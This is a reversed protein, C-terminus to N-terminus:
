KRGDHDAPLLNSKSPTLPVLKTPSKNQTSMLRAPEFPSRNHLSNARMANIITSETVNVNREGEAQNTARAKRSAIGTGPLRHDESVSPPQPGRYTIIV